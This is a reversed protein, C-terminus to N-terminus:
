GVYFRPGDECGECKRCGEGTERYHDCDLDAHVEPLPMAKAHRTLVEGYTKWDGDWFGCGHGASTYHYDRGAKEMDNGDDECAISLLIEFKNEFATCAAIFRERDPLGMNNWDNWDMDFEGSTPLPHTTFFAATIAGRQFETPSWGTRPGRSSYSRPTYTLKDM